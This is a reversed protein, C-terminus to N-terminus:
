DNTSEQEDKYKLAEKQLDEFMMIQSKKQVLGLLQILTNFLGGVLIILLWWLTKFGIICMTIGCLLGIIIIWTSSIQMKVQQMITIGNIGQKWHMLFTKLNMRGKKTRFQFNDLM